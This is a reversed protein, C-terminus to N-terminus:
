FGDEPMVFIAIIYIILLPFVATFAAILVYILRVITVDVNLYESLGGLVGALMKQNRSRRLKRM